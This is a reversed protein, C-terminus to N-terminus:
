CKFPWSTTLETTRVKEWWKEMAWKRYLGTLNEFDHLFVTNLNVNVAKLRCGTPKRSLVWFGAAKGTNFSWIKICMVRGIEAWIDRGLGSASTNELQFHCNRQTYMFVCVCVCLKREYNWDRRSKSTKGRRGSPSTNRTECLLTWSLVLSFFESSLSFCFLRLEKTAM